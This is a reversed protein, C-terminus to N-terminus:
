NLVEDSHANAKADRLWNGLLFHGDTQLIMEFDVIINLLQNSTLTFNPIDQAKFAKVMEKYVLSFNVQM